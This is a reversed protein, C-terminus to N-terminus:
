QEATCLLIHLNAHASEIAPGSCLLSSRIVFYCWGRPCACCPSEDTSLTLTAAKRAARRQQAVQQREAFRARDTQTAPTLSNIAMARGTLPDRAVFTFLAVLSPEDTEGQVATPRVQRLQRGSSLAMLVSPGLM